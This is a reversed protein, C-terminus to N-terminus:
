MFSHRLFAAENSKPTNRRKIFDKDHFGALKLIETSAKLRIEDSKANESLRVLENIADFSAKVIRHYADDAIDDQLDHLVAEFSPNQKWERITETSVGLMEATDPLSNGTVLLHIAQVKKTSLGDIVDNSM